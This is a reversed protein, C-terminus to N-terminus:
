CGGTEELGATGFDEYGGAFGGGAFGGDCCEVRKGIFVGIRACVANGSIAGFDRLDLPQNSFNRFMRIMHVNQKCIRARAPATLKFLYILLIPPILNHININLPNEKSNLLVDGCM